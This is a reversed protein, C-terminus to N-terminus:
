SHNAQTTPECRKNDGDVYVVVPKHKYEEYISEPANPKMLGFTCIILIDGIAAKRAAAGRVSIIGSGPEAPIAYTAFRDGTNVNYIHIMEYEDIIADKLLLSDIACSGEYTLNIETVTARHIKSKLKQVLMNTSLLRNM